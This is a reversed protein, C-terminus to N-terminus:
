FHGQGGGRSLRLEGENQVRAHILRERLKGLNKTGAGAWGREQEATERRGGEAERQMGARSRERSGLSRNTSVGGFGGPEQERQRGAAGRGGGESPEAGGLM